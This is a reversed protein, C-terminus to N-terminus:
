DNEVEEKIKNIEIKVEALRKKIFQILELGRKYKPIMEEIELSDSELDLAIKDLEEFAEKITYDKGM